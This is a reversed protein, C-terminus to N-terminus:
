VVDAVACMYQWFMFVEDWFIIAPFSHCREALSGGVWWSFSSSPPSEASSTRDKQQTVAPLPTVYTYRWTKEHEFPIMMIYFSFNLNWLWQIRGPHRHTHVSGFSERVDFSSVVVVLAAALLSIFFAKPFIHTGFINIRRKQTKKQCTLTPDAPKQKYNWTLYM